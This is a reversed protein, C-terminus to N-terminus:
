AVAINGRMRKGAMGVLDPLSVVFILELLPLQPLWFLLNYYWQTHMARLITTSVKFFKWSEQTQQSHWLPFSFTKKNEYWLGTMTFAWLLTISGGCNSNNPLGWFPQETKDKLFLLFKLEPHFLDKNKLCLCHILHGQCKM